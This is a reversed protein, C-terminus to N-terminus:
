QNVLLSVLKIGGRRTKNYGLGYRISEPIYYEGETEKLYGYRELNKRDEPNLRDLVDDLLPVQKISNPVEKLIQFSRKLQQIETEVEKLKEDSCSKIAKKMPEPSLLRDHYITKGDDRESSAYKLFRVIDRAQLQGKFDSLSALVWRITGATKSGDPGMKKGWVTCLHEEIAEPSLNYIPTTDKPMEIGSMEGARSTLKWALQLADKQLWNLEYQQYQNRFQEFNIDIALEAIDKRIFVITGIQETQYEYLQNVFGKCLARIARKQTDNQAFDSFLTELGDYLFLIRKGISHLYQELEKWSSVDFMDWIM